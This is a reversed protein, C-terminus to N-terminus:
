YLSAIFDSLKLETSWIADSECDCYVVTDTASSYCIYNGFPDIAFPILDKGKFVDLATYISDVSPENKNVSLVAGFIRETTGVMFRCKPPTAANHNTIFAKLADGFKVGYTAEIEDFVGEHAVDIKYKWNNM